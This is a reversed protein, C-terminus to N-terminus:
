GHVVITQDEKSRQAAYECFSILHDGNKDFKHMAHFASMAAYNSIRQSCDVDKVQGWGYLGHNWHHHRFHGAPPGHHHYGQLNRGKSEKLQETATRFLGNLMDSMGNKDVKDKLLEGLQDWLGYKKKDAANDNCFMGYNKKWRALIAKNNEAVSIAGSSDTDLLDFEAKYQAEHTSDINDGFNCDYIDEGNKGPTEVHCKFNCCSDTRMACANKDSCKPATCISRCRQPSLM